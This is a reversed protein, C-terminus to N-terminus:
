CMYPPSCSGRAQIGASINSEIDETSLQMCTVHIFEYLTLYTYVFLFSFITLVLFFKTFYDPRSFFFFLCEREYTTVLFKYFNLVQQLPESLSPPPMFASVFPLLILAVVSFSFSKINGTMTLFSHLVIFINELLALTSM